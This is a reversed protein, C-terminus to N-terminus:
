GRRSASNATESPYGAGRLLGTVHWILSSLLEDSVASACTAPQHDAIRISLLITARMREGVRGRINSRFRWSPRTGSAMAVAFIAELAQDLARIPRDNSLPELMRTIDDSTDSRDPVLEIGRKTKLVGDGTAVTLAKSRFTRSYADATFALAIEDIGAEVPV